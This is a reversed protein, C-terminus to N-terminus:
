APKLKQWEPLEIHGRDWAIPAQLGHAGALRKLVEWETEPLSWTPETASKWGCFDVAMGYQHASHWAGARTTKPQNDKLWNQRIPDRYTEFPLISTAIEGSALANNLDNILAWVRDQMMPHLLALERHIIPQKM